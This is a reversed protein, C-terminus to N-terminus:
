ARGLLADIKAKSYRVRRKSGTDIRCAEVKPMEYLEQRPVDFLDAVEQQRYTEPSM